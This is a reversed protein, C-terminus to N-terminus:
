LPRGGGAYEPHRGRDSLKPRLRHLGADARRAPPRRQRGPLGPDGASRRQHRGLCGRGGSHARE